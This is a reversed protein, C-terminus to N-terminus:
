YGGYCIDMDGGDDSYGDWAEVDKQIDEIEIATLGGVVVEGTDAWRASVIHVEADDGVDPDSFAVWRPAPRGGVYNFVVVVDRYHDNDEDYRTIYTTTPM